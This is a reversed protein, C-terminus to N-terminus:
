RGTDLRKLIKALEAKQQASLGKFYPLLGQYNKANHRITTVHGDKMLVNIQGNHNGIRDVATVNKQITIRVRLGAINM